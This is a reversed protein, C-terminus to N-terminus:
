PAIRGGEGPWFRSASRRFYSRKSSAFIPNAENWGIRAVVRQCV